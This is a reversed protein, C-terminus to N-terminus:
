VFPLFLARKVWPEGDLWLDEGRVQLTSAMRAEFLARATNREDPPELTMSHHAHLMAPWVKRLRWGGECPEVQASLQVDPSLFIRASGLAAHIERLFPGMTPRLLAVLREAYAASSPCRFSCPTWSILHFISFSLMNLWALGPGETHALARAGLAFDDRPSKCAIFAEICCPPFGLLGGLDRTQQDSVFGDPTAEAALLERLTAGDRAVFLIWIGQGGHQMMDGHVDRHFVETVFGRKEFYEKKVALQEPDLHQRVAPKIRAFLAAEEAQGSGLPYKLARTRVERLLGPPPAVPAPRLWLPAPNM